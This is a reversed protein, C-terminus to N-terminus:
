PTTVVTVNSVAPLATASKQLGWVQNLLTLIQPSAHNPFEVNACDHDDCISPIYYTTDRYDVQAIADDTPSGTRIRFLEEKRPTGDDNLGALFSVSPEEAFQSAEINKLNVERRIIQGIYYVMAEMSRQTFAIAVDKPESENIGKPPVADGCSQPSDKKAALQPKTASDPGFSASVTLVSLSTYESPVKTSQEVFKSQHTKTSGVKVPVIKPPAIYKKMEEALKFAVGDKKKCVAVDGGKLVAVEFGQQSLDALFRPNGKAISLPIKYSFEHSTSPDAHLGVALLARTIESFCRFSRYSKKQYVAPDNAFLNSTTKDDGVPNLCNSSPLRDPELFIETCWPNSGQSHVEQCHHSALNSLDKIQANTMSVSGIFMLLLEERNFGESQFYQYLQMPAPTMLGTISAQDDSNLLSLQNQETASLGSTVTTVARALTTVIGSPSTAPPALTSAVSRAGISPIAASLTPTITGTATDGTLRSYYTPERMSARIANLLILQNTSDAVSRNFSITRDVTGPSYQCGGLVFVALCLAGSLYRYLM